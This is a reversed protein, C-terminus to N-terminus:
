LIENKLVENLMHKAYLELANEKYDKNLQEVAKKLEKKRIEYYDQDEILKIIEKMLIKTNFDQQLFEPAVEKKALINAIGIWKSDVVLKGLFFTFKSIKYCILMPVQLVLGEFTATGSSMLSFKSNKFIKYNNQNIRHIYKRDKIYKYVLNDFMNSSIPLICELGYQEYVLDAIKIFKPLLKKLEQYRSGPMMYFYEKGTNIFNAIEKDNIEESLKNELYKKDLFPHGFFVVSNNNIKRYEEYDEKFPIYFYDIYKQLKTGNWKGWISIPPPFYYITKIGMKKLTKAFPINFGQNDVLIFVDPKQKKIENIFKNGIVLRDFVFPISELIGVSSRHTFDFLVNIGQNKMHKGGLGFAEINPNLKKINQFLISAQLDGSVEGASFGIKIKKM